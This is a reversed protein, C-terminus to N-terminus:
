FHILDNQSNIAAENQVSLAGSFRDELIWFQPIPEESLCPLCKTAFNRLSLEKVPERVQPFVPPKGTGAVDNGCPSTTEVKM